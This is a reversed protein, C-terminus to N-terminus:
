SESLQFYESRTFLFFRYAFRWPQSHARTCQGSPRLRRGEPHRTPCSPYFSAAIVMFNSMENLSNKKSYATYRVLLRMAKSTSHINSELFRTFRLHVYM